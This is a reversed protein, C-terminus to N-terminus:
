GFTGLPTDTWLWGEPLDCWSRCSYNDERPPTAEWLFGSHRSVLFCSWCASKKGRWVCRILDNFRRITRRWDRHGPLWQDFPLNGVPQPCPGGPLVERQPNFSQGPLLPHRQCLPNPPLPLEFAPVQKDKQDVGINQWLVHSRIHAAVSFDLIQVKIQVLFFLFFFLFFIM